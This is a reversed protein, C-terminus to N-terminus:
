ALTTAALLLVKNGDPTLGEETKMEHSLKVKAKVNAEKISHVRVDLCPKLQSKWCVDDDKHYHYDLEAVVDISKSM